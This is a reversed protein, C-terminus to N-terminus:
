LSKPWELPRSDGLSHLLLKLIDQTEGTHRRREVRPGTCGGTSNRLAPPFADHSSSEQQGKPGECVAMTDDTERLSSSSPEHGRSELFLSSSEGGGSDLTWLKYTSPFPLCLPHFLFGLQDQEDGRKRM